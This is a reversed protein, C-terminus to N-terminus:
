LRKGDAAKEMEAVMSIFGTPVLYLLSSSNGFYLTPKSVSVYCQINQSVCNALVNKNTKKQTKFVNHGTKQDCKTSLKRNFRVDFAEGTWNSTLSHKLEFGRLTLITRLHPIHKKYQHREKKGGLM